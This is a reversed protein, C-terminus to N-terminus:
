EKQERTYERKQGQFKKKKDKKNDKKPSEAMNDCSLASKLDKPKPEKLCFFDKFDQTQMNLSTNQSPYHSRSCCVNSDWVIINSRLGAKTKAIVTRQVM